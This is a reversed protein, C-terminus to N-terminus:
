DSREVKFTNPLDIKVAADVTEDPCVHFHDCEGASKGGSDFVASANYRGESLSVTFSGDPGTEGEIPAGEAAHITVKAGALAFPLDRIIGYVRIVATGKNKAM